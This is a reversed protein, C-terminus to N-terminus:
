NEDVEQIQNRVSKKVYSIFMTSPACKHFSIKGTEYYYKESEYMRYVAAPYNNYVFSELDWDVGEKLEEIIVAKESDVAIVAHSFENSSSPNRVVVYYINRHKRISAVYLNLGSDWLFDDFQVTVTKYINAGNKSLSYKYIVEYGDITCSHTNKFIKNKQASSEHTSGTISAESYIRESKLKRGDWDYICRYIWM